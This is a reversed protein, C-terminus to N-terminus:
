MVPAPTGDSFRGVPILLVTLHDDPDPAVIVPSSPVDARWAAADAPSLFFMLHPHWHGNADSLYAHSSLMYCMANHELAPFENKDFAAKIKLFLDEKSPGALVWETRKLMLPVYSRAAPPNFCIPARLKPNWFDPDDAGAAWSRLVMCVFGNKGKAANEYGQRGLVLVDADQSISDPAASRALTIEENREMLYQELSAMKPYPSKPSQAASQLSVGLFALLALIGSVFMKTMKGNKSPSVMARRQFNM